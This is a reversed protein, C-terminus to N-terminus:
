AQAEAVPLAAPRDKPETRWSRDRAWRRWGLGGLGAALLAWAPPEPVATAAVFSFDDAVWNGGFPAGLERRDIRYGTIGSLTAFVSTDVFGLPEPEGPLLEPLDFVM